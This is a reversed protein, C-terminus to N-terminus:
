LAIFFHKELKEPFDKGIQNSFSKRRKLVEYGLLKTGKKWDNSGAM